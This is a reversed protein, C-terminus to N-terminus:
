DGTRQVALAEPKRLVISDRILTQPSHFTAM